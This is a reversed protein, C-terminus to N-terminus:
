RRGASASRARQTRGSSPAPRRRRRGECETNPLPPGVSGAVQRARHELRRADRPSTETMGYAQMVPCGLRASRVGAALDRGAARRGVAGNRLTSLDYKSSSRTSPWRWCSRRCWTCSVDRRVAADARLVSSSTSARCRSSRRARSSRRPEHDRDHRLHPLVAPGGAAHRRETSAADSASSAPLM